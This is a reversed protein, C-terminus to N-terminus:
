KQNKINVKHTKMSFGFLFFKGNEKVPSYAVLSIYSIHEKANVLCGGQHSQPGPSIRSQLDQLLLHACCRTCTRMNTGMGNADCQDTDRKGKQM